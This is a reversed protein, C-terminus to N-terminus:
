ANKAWIQSLVSRKLQILHKWISQIGINSSVDHKQVHFLSLKAFFLVFFFRKKRNSNLAKTFKQTCKPLVRVRANRGSKPTKLYIENCNQSISTMEVLKCRKPSSVPLLSPLCEWGLDNHLCINLNWRYLCCILQVCSFSSYHRPSFLAASFIIYKNKFSFILM